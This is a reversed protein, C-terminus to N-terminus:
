FSGLLHVSGLGAGVKAAGKSSGGWDVLFIAAAGTLAALGLTVGLLVNTRTQKARGADLNEQTQAADYTSKANLTDVGLGITIGLAVATAAGGGIVVAPPLPKGRDPEKATADIPVSVADEVLAVSAVGGAEVSQVRQIVKDKTRARVVHTGPTVYVSKGLAVEDDVEVKDAGPANINLKGLKPTLKDLSTTANKRDPADPPAESLYRAYLNAARPLEGARNWARAANWLASPHPVHDFAEEFAAGAGKFDKAAYAKEGRNFAAAAAKKKEFSPPSAPAAPSTPSPSALLAPSAHAAGPSSASSAVPGVYALAPAIPAALSVLFTAGACMSAIWLRVRRAHVWRAERKVPLSAAYWGGKERSERNPWAMTTLSAIVPPM